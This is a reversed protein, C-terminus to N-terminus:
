VGKKGKGKLAGVVIEAVQTGWRAQAEEREKRAAEEGARLGAMFAESGVPGDKAQQVTAENATWVPVAAEWRQLQVPDEVKPFDTQVETPTVVQKWQKGKRPPEAAAIGILVRAGPQVHDFFDSGAPTARPRRGSITMTFLKDTNPASTMDINVVNCTQVYGPVAAAPGGASEQTAAKPPMVMAAGPPSEIRMSDGGPWNVLVYWYSDEAPIKEGTLDLLYDDPLVQVQAGGAVVWPAIKLAQAATWAQENTLSSM